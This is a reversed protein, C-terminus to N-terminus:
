MFSSNSEDSHVPSKRASMWSAPTPCANKAIYSQIGRRIRKNEYAKGLQSVVISVRRPGRGSLAQVWLWLGTKLLATIGVFHAEPTVPEFSRRRGEKGENVCLFGEAVILLAKSPCGLHKSVLRRKGQTAKFGSVPRTTVLGTCGCFADSIGEFM